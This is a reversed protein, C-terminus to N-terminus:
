IPRLPSLPPPPLWACFLYLLNLPAVLSPLPEHVECRLHVQRDAPMPQGQPATAHWQCRSPTMRLPSRRPLAISYVGCRFALPGNTCVCFLHRQGRQLPPPPVGVAHSESMLRGGPAIVTYINPHGEHPILLSAGWLSPRQASPHPIHTALVRFGLWVNIRCGLAKSSKDM